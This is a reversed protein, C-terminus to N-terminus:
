NKECNDLKKKNIKKLTFILRRGENKFDFHDLYVYFEKHKNLTSTDIIIDDRYKGNLVRVTRGEVHYFEDPSDSIKKLFGFKVGNDYFDKSFNLDPNKTLIYHKCFVVSGWEEIDAKTTSNVKKFSDWGYYKQHAVIYDYKTFDKIVEYEM